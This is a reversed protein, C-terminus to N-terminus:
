HTCEMIEFVLLMYVLLMYVWNLQLLYINMELHERYGELLIAGEWYKWCGQLMNFTRQAKNIVELCSKHGFFM